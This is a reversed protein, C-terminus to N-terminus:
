RMYGNHRQVLVATFDGDAEETVQKLCGEEFVTPDGAPCRRTITTVESTETKAYFLAFNRVTQKRSVLAKDWRLGFELPEAFEVSEGGVQALGETWTGGRCVQGKECAFARNSPKLSAQAGRADATIKLSAIQPQQRAVGTGTPDTSITTQTGAPVWTAAEGSTASVVTEASATATRKPDSGPNDGAAFTTVVENLAVGETGPGKVTVALTAEAGSALSGIACSVVPRGANDPGRSCTGQSAVFVPDATGAPLTDVIQVQTMTSNGANRVVSEYRVYTTSADTRVSVSEPTSKATICAPTVEPCAPTQTQAGASSAWLLAALLVLLSFLPVRSVRM